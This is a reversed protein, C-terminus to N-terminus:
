SKLAKLFARRECRNRREEQKRKRRARAQLAGMMRKRREAELRQAELQRLKEMRMQEIKRNAEFEPDEREWEEKARRAAEARAWDVAEGHAEAATDESLWDLVLEFYMRAEHQADTELLRNGRFTGEEVFGDAHTLKGRGQMEGEFWEGKYERGDEFHYEGYGHRAGNLFGGVYTEGSEPHFWEAPSSNEDEINHFVDDKWGGRYMLKGNKDSIEGPPSGSLTHRKGHVYTGKYICHKFVGGLIRALGPGHMKDEEWAGEYAATGNKLRFTGHGHRKGCKWQGEYVCGDGYRYVGHDGEFKGDKFPGRYIPLLDGLSKYLDAVGDLKGEKFKGKLFTGDANQLTGEGHKKNNKFSGVYHSGDAGWWEGPGNMAGDRWEGVHSARSMSTVTSGLKKLTKKPTPSEATKAKTTKRSTADSTSAPDDTEAGTGDEVAGKWDGHGCRQGKAWTCTLVSGDKGRWIGPGHALDDLWSGEFTAGDAFTQVGPGQRLGRADWTGQFRTRGDADLLVGKKFPRDNKWLGKFRFTALRMWPERAKKTCNGKRTSPKRRKSRTTTVDATEIDDTLAGLRFGPVESSLRDDEDSLRAADGLVKDSEDSDTSSEYDSDSNSDDGDESSSQAAPACEEEEGDKVPRRRPLPWVGVGQGHRSGSVFTGMHSVGHVDEGVQGFMQGEGHPLWDLIMGVYYPTKSAGLAYLMGHGSPKGKSWRGDFSKGSDLDWGRGQGHPLDHAFMGKHMCRGGQSFREGYGHFRSMEYSGRYLMSGDKYFRYGFGHRYALGKFTKQFEGLYWGGDICPILKSHQSSTEDLSPLLLAYPSNSSSHSSLKRKARRRVPPTQADTAIAPPLSTTASSRPSPSPPPADAPLLLARLKAREGAALRRAQEKRRERRDIKALRRAERRRGAKERRQKASQEAAIRQQRAATSKRRAREIYLARVSSM